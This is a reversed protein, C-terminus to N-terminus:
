RGRILVYGGSQRVDQVDTADAEGQSVTVADGEAFEMTVAPQLVKVPLNPPLRGLDNLFTRVAAEDVDTAKAAKAAAVKLDDIVESAQRKSLTRAEGTFYASSPEGARELLAEIFAVQKDTARNSPRTGTGEGGGGGEPADMSPGNGLAVLGPGAFPHQGDATPASPTAGGPPADDAHAEGPHSGTRQPPTHTAPLAGYFWEATGHQAIGYRAGYVPEWPWTHCGSSFLLSHIEADGACNGHHADYGPFAGGRTPDIVAALRHAHDLYGHAAEHLLVNALVSVGQSDLAGGRYCWALVLAPDCLLVNGPTVGFTGYGPVLVPRLQLVAKAFWPLRAIAVARAAALAV